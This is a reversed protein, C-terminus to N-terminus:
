DALERRCNFITAMGAWEQVLAYEEPTVSEAILKMNGEAEIIGRAAARDFWAHANSFACLARQQAEVVGQKAARHFVKAEAAYTKGLAYQAEV